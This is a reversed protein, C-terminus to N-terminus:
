FSMGIKEGDFGSGDFNTHKSMEDFDSSTITRKYMNAVGLVSCGYIFYKDCLIKYLEVGFKGDVSIKTGYNKNLITQLAGVKQNKDGVKLPFNGVPLKKLEENSLIIQGQPANPDKVKADLIDNIDKILKKNKRRRIIVFTIVSLAM